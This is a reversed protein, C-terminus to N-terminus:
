KKEAAAKKVLNEIEHTTWSTKTVGTKLDSRDSRKNCSDGLIAHVQRSNGFRAVM